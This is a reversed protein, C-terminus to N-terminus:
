LKVRRGNPLQVINQGQTTDQQSDSEQSGHPGNEETNSLDGNWSDPEEIAPRYVRILRGLRKAPLDGKNVMNVVHARSCRLIKAADDTSCYLPETM